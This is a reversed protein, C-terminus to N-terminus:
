GEPLVEPATFPVGQANIDDRGRAHLEGEILWRMRDIELMSREAHRRLAGGKWSKPAVDVADFLTAFAVENRFVSLVRFAEILAEDSMGHGNAVM